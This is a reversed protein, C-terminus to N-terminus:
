ASKQLFDLVIRDAEEPVEWIFCHGAHELFVLESGPIRSALTRSNEPPMLVDEAGTMILTPVRIEPLREYADFYALAEMQHKMGHRSPPCETGREMIERVLEQRRQLSATGLIVQSTAEMAESPPMSPIRALLHITEQSPFLSHAGGCSTAGLVLSRVRGPKDLAMQQAIMGGMSLGYVHAAEVGLNDMLGTVDDVFMQMTYPGEPKESRGVGRHDYTIVKYENSFSAVQRWWMNGGGGLGMILVVPEGQGHIEYYIGTDGVTAIPM